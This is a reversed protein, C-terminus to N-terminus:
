LTLLRSTLLCMKLAVSNLVIDFCQWFAPLLNRAFVKASNASLIVPSVRMFQLKSFFKLLVSCINAIHTYFLSPITCSVCNALGPSGETYYETTQWIEKSFLTLVSSSVTNATFAASAQHVSASTVSSPTVGTPRASTAYEETTVLTQIALVQM